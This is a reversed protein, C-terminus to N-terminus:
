LADIISELQHLKENWVLELHAQLPQRGSVGILPHKPEFVNLTRFRRREGRAVGADALAQVVRDSWELLIKREAEHDYQKIPLLDNRHMVGEAHLDELADKATNRTLLRQGYEWLGFLFAALAFGLGFPGILSDWGAILWGPPNAFLSYLQDYGQQKASKSM